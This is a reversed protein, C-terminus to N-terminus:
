PVMSSNTTDARDRLILHCTDPDDRYIGVRGTTGGKGSLCELMSARGRMCGSVVFSDRQSDDISHV